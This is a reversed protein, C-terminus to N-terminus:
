TTTSDTGYINWNDTNIIPTVVCKDLRAGRKCDQVLYQYVLYADDVNSHTSHM